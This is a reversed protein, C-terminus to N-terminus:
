HKIYEGEWVGFGQTGSAGIVGHTADSNALVHTQRTRCLPGPMLHAVETRRIM